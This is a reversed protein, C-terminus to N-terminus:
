LVSEIFFSTSAFSFFFKWFEDDVSSIFKNFEDPILYLKTEDNNEVKNPDDEFNGVVAFPNVTVYSRKVAYAFVSKFCDYIKKMSKVSIPQEKMYAKWKEVLNPTILDINKNNFIDGYKQINVKKAYLTGDKNHSNELFEEVLDNWIIKNSITKGCSLLFKREAEEAQGKLEYKKSKKTHTEGYADKFQCKFFWKRGDKTTEKSKYVPM